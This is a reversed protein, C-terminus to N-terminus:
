VPKRIGGVAYVSGMSFDAWIPELNQPPGAQPTARSLQDLTIKEVLFEPPGTIFANIIALAETASVGFRSSYLQSLTGTDVDMLLLRTIFAASDNLKYTQKSSDNIIQAKHPYKNRENGVWPPTNSPDPGIKQGEFFTLDSKLKYYKATLM